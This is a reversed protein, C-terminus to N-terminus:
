GKYDITEMAKTLFPIITFSLFVLKNSMKIPSRIIIEELEAFFTAKVKVAVRLREGDEGYRWKVEAGEETSTDMLRIDRNVTLPVEKKIMMGPFDKTARITEYVM